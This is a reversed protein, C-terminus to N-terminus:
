RPTIMQKQGDDTVRVADHRVVFAGASAQEGPKLLAQVDIKFQTGAFGVFMLAVGLHVIYGGYRRRSRAILSALAAPVGIGATRHRV